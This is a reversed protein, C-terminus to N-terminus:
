CDAKDDDHDAASKNRDHEEAEEALSKEAQRRWYNENYKKVKESNNKRWNRFYEKRAEQGANDLDKKDM